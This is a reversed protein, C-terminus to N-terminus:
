VLGTIQTHGYIGLTINTAAAPLVSDQCSEGSLKMAPRPPAFRAARGLPGTSSHVLTGQAKHPPRLSTDSLAARRVPDM